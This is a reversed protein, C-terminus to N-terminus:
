GPYMLYTLTFSLARDGNTFASNLLNASTDARQFYCRQPTSSDYAVLLNIRTAGAFFANGAGGRRDLAGSQLDNRQPLFVQVANAGSGDTGADGSAEFVVTCEGTNKSLKYTM